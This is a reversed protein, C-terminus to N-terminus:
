LNLLTMKHSFTVGMTSHHSNLQVLREMLSVPLSFDNDFYHCKLCHINICYRKTIDSSIHWIGSRLGVDENVCNLCLKNILGDTESM